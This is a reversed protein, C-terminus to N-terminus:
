PKSLPKSTQFYFRLCPPSIQHKSTHNVTQLASKLDPPCIRPRSPLNSTQLAHKLCPLALKLGQDIPPISPCVSPHISPHFSPHISPRIISPCLYSMLFNGGTNQLVNVRQPRVKSHNIAVNFILFVSQFRLGNQLGEFVRENPAM